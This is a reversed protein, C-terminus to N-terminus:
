FFIALAATLFFLLGSLKILRGALGVKQFKAEAIESLASLEDHLDPAALAEALEDPRCHAYHLFNANGRGDLRPLVVDVLSWAAAGAVLAAVAGLAVIPWPHHMVGGLHQAVAALMVVVGGAFFSAKTDTRSIRAEAKDIESEVRDPEPVSELADAIRELNEDIAALRESIGALEASAALVSYPVAVEHGDQISWRHQPHRGDLATHARDRYRDAQDTPTIRPDHTTTM